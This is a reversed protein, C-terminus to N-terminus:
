TYIVTCIFSFSVEVSRTKLLLIPHTMMVVASAIFTPRRIDFRLNVSHWLFPLCASMFCFVSYYVVVFAFHTINQKVKIVGGKNRRLISKPCFLGRKKSLLIRDSGLVEFLAVLVKMPITLVSKKKKKTQGTIRHLMVAQQTLMSDRTSQRQPPRCGCLNSFRWTRASFHQFRM